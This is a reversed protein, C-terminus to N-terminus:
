KMEAGDVRSQSRSATGVPSLTPKSAYAERQFVFRPNRKALMVVLFTEMLESVLFLKPKRAAPCSRRGMQSCRTTSLSARPREGLSSKVEYLSALLVWLAMFGHIFFYLIHPPYFRRHVMITIILLLRIKFVFSVTNCQPTKFCSSFM